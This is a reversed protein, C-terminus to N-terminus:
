LSWEIIAFFLVAVIFVLITKVLGFAILMAITYAVLLLFVFILALVLIIDRLM